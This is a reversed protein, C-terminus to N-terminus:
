GMYIVPTIVWKVPYNAVLYGIIYLLQSTTEINILEGAIADRSGMSLGTSDGISQITRLKSRPMHLHIVSKRMPNTCHPAGRNYTPKFVGHISYNYTGYVM